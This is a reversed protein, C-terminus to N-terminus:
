WLYLAIRAANVANALFWGLGLIRGTRDIWSPEPRWSGGLALSFWAGFVAFAPEPTYNLLFWRVVHADKGAALSLIPMVSCLSVALCAASCGVFGPQRALVRMRPRPRRLRIALVALTWTFLVPLTGMLGATIGDALWRTSTASKSWLGAIQGEPGFNFRAWAFGAGTAAVLIMGDVLHFRRPPEAPM